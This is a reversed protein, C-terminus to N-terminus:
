IRFFRCTDSSNLNLLPTQYISIGNDEKSEGNNLRITKIM